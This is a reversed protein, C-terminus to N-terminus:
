QKVFKITETKQGCIIKCLYVGQALNSVDVQQTGANLLIPNSKLLSGNMSLIQITGSENVVNRLDINLISRVPNPYVSFRQENSNNEQVGVTYLQFAIYRVSDLNYQIDNGNIQDIVINGTSFTMKSINNISYSAQINNVQKVYMTQAMGYQTLFLFLLASFIKFCKNKMNIINTLKHHVRM